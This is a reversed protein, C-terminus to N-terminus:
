AGTAKAFAAHAAKHAAIKDPHVGRLRDVRLVAQLAELLEPAADAERELALIHDRAWGPLSNFQLNTYGQRIPTHTAQGTTHTTM